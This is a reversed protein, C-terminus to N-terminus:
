FGKLDNIHMQIAKLPRIIDSCIMCSTGTTRRHHMQRAQSAQPPAQPNEPDVKKQKGM